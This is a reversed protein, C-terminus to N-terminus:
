KEPRTGRATNWANLDTLLEEVTRKDAVGTVPIVSHHQYNQIAGKTMPGMEGDLELNAADIHNLSAQVWAIEQPELGITPPAKLRPWVVAVVSGTSINTVNVMDSQNGGRCRWYGPDGMSEFMTVHGGGERETVVIAGLQPEALKTSQAWDSWALAWMWRETDTEGFVPEIGSLTVCYAVTLGCWAVDDGSYYSCYDAQHPYERAIADAMHMIRPNDGSGSQETMGTIARMVMLWPPALEEAMM